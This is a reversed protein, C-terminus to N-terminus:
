FANIKQECIAGDGQQTQMFKVDTFAELTYENLEEGDQQAADGATEQERNHPENYEDPNTDFGVSVISTFGGDVVCGTALESLFVNVGPIFRAIIIECAPFRRRNIINSKIFARPQRGSGKKIEKQLFVFFAQM